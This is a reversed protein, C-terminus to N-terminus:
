NQHLWRCHILDPSKEQKESSTKGPSAFGVESTPLAQKLEPNPEKDLLVSCAL